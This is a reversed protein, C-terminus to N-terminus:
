QSFGSGPTATRWTASASATSLRTRRRTAVVVRGAVTRRTSRRPWRAPARALRPRSENRVARARARRGTGARIQTDVPGRASPLGLLEDIAELRLSGAGAPPVDDRQSPTLSTRGPSRISRPRSRSGRLELRRDSAPAIARHVRRKAVDLGLQRSRRCLFRGRGRLSSAPSGIASVKLPSATPASAGPAGPPEDAEARGAVM